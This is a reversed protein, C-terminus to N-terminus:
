KELNNDTEHACMSEFDTVVVEARAMWVACGGAAAPGVLARNIKGGSGFGSLVVDEV